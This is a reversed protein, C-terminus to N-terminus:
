QAEAKRLTGWFGPSRAATRVQGAGGVEQCGAPDASVPALKKGGVSFVLAYTAFTDAPCVVARSTMPPLGCVAEAVSRAAAPDTITRAPFEFGQQQKRALPGQRAHQVALATVQSAQGCVGSSGGSSSITSGCAAPSCALALAALAGTVQRSTKVSTLHIGAAV